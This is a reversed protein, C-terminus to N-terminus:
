MRQPFNFLILLLLPLRPPSCSYHHALPNPPFLFIFVAPLLPFLLLLRVTVGEVLFNHGSHTHCISTQSYLQLPRHIISHPGPLLPYLKLPIVLLLFPQIVVSSSNIQWRELQLGLSIIPKLRTQSDEEVRGYAESPRSRSLRRRCESLLM